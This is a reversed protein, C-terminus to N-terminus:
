CRRWRLHERIACCWLSILAPKMRLVEAPKWSKKSYLVESRVEVEVLCVSSHCPWSPGPASRRRGLHPADVHRGSPAKPSSHEYRSPSIRRTLSAMLPSQRQSPFRSVPMVLSWHARWCKAAALSLTSWDTLPMGSGRCQIGTRRCTRPGIQRCCGHMAPLIRSTPKFSSFTLAECEQM